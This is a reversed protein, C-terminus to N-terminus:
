AAAIGVSSDGHLPASARPFKAPAFDGLGRIEASATAQHLLAPDTAVRKQSRVPMSRKGIFVEGLAVRANGELDLFGARFTKCLDQAEPSLHRAILVPTADSAIRAADERLMELAIRLKAPQSSSTIECVLTHCRGLVDVCAAFAARGGKPSPELRIEKLKASSVGCLVLKLAETARLRMRDNPESRNM